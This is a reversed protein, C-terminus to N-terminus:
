YKRCNTITGYTQCTVRNGDSSGYNGIADGIDKIGEYAVIRKNRIETAICETMDSTGYKYGYGNCIKKYYAIREEPEAFKFWFNSGVSPGCSSLLLALVIGFLITKM